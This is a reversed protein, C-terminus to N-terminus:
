PFRKKLYRNLFFVCVAVFSASVLSAVTHLAVSLFEQMLATSIFGLILSGIGNTVDTDYHHNAM